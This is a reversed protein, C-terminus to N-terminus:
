QLGNVVKAKWFVRHLMEGFLALIMSGGLWTVVQMESDLRVLLDHDAAERQQQDARVIALQGALDATSNMNAKIEDQLYMEELNKPEQADAQAVDLHRAVEIPICVLFAAAVVVVHLATILRTIM